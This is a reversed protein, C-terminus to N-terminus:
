RRVPQLFIRGVDLVPKGSATNTLASTPCNTEFPRYGSREFSLSVVNWDSGRVISLVRESSLEFRGNQDTQVPVKLM